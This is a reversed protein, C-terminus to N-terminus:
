HLSEMIQLRRSRRSHQVNLLPSYTFDPNASNSCHHQWAFSSTHKKSRILKWIILVQNVQRNLHRRIRKSKKDKKSLDCYAPEAQSSSLCILCDTPNKTYKKKNLTSNQTMYCECVCMYFAHLMLLKYVKKLYM